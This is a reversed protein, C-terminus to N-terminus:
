NQRWDHLSPIDPWELDLANMENTLTQANEDDNLARYSSICVAYCHQRYAMPMPGAFVIPRLANWLAAEFNEAEFELQALVWWGLASDHFRPATKIWAGALQRTEEQLKLRYHALLVIDRLKRKVSTTKIHPALRRATAVADIPKGQGLYADALRAFFVAEKEPLFDLYPSRQAFLARLVPIAVAEHGDDLLDLALLKYDNGPFHLQADDGRGYTYIVEGADAPATLTFQTESFRDIRGTVSRGFKNIVTVPKSLESEMAALHPNEGHVTCASLTLCALAAIASTPQPHIM